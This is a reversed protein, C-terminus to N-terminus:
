GELIKNVKEYLLNLLQTTVIINREKTDTSKSNQNNIASEQSSVWLEEKTSAEKIVKDYAEKLKQESITLANDIVTPVDKKIADKIIQHQKEIKNKFIKETIVSAGTGISISTVVALPGLGAFLIYGAITAAGTGLRIMNKQKHLDDFDINASSRTERFQVKDAIIEKEVALGLQYNKALAENIWRVDNNYIQTLGNELMAALNM